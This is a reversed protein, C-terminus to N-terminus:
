PRGGASEVPRVRFRYTLTNVAPKGDPRPRPLWDSWALASRSPNAGVPVEFGQSMGGLNVLVIRKGRSTFLDATCTMFWRDEQRRLSTWVIKGEQRARATRSYSPLSVLEFSDATAPMPAVSAPPSRLEIELELPKGDIEPPIDARARSTWLALLALVCVLAPPAVFAPWTQPWIAAAVRSAILGLLFSGIGGALATIIVFYGSQGERSSISYWSVCKNAIFGAALLGLVGALVSSLVTYLWSM